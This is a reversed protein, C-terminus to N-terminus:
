ELPSIPIDCVMQTRVWSLRDGNLQPSFVCMLPWAIWMPV